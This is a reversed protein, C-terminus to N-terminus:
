VLDPKSSNLNNDQFLGYLSILSEGSNDMPITAQTSNRQISNRASIISRISSRRVVRPRLYQRRRHARFRTVTQTPNVV